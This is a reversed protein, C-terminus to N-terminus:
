ATENGPSSGGDSGPPCGYEKEHEVHQRPHPGPASQQPVENCPLTRVGTKTLGAISASAVGGTM